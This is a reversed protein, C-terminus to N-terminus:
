SQRHNQRRRLATASRIKAPAYISRLSCYAAHEGEINSCKYNYIIYLLYVYLLVYM